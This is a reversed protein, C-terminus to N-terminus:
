SSQISLKHYLAQHFPTFSHSCSHLRSKVPEMPSVRGIYMASNWMGIM